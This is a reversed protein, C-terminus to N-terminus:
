QEALKSLTRIAPTCDSPQHTEHTQKTATTSAGNRQEHRADHAEAGGTEAVGAPVVRRAIGNGNVVVVVRVAEAAARQRAGGIGLVTEDAM